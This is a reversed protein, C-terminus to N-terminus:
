ATVAVTASGLIFLPFEALQGAVNTTFAGGMTVGGDTFHTGGSVDIAAPSLAVSVITAV